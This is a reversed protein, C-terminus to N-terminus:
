KPPHLEGKTWGVADSKFPDCAVTRIEAHACKRCAFTRREFGELWESLATTVM